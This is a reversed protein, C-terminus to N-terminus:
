SAYTPRRSRLPSSTHAVKRPPAPSLSPANWRAASAAPRGTTTVLENESSKGTFSPGRSARVVLEQAAVSRAASPAESTHDPQSFTPELGFDTTNPGSPVTKTPPSAPSPNGARKTPDTSSVVSRRSPPVQTSFIVACPWVTKV